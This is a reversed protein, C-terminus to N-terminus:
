AFLARAAEITLRCDQPGCVTSTIGDIKAVIEGKPLLAGVVSNGESDELKVWGVPLTWWTMDAPSEAKSVQFLQNANM